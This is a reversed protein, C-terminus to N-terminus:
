SELGSPYGFVEPVAVMASFWAKDMDREVALRNLAYRSMAARANTGGVYSCAARYGSRAVAEMVRRDYADPGGVPYSIIEAPRPLHGDLAAKSATLEYDLEEDTLKALMRHHVGHSGIEMGGDQMEAIAEWTMPRCDPHPARPLNWERELRAITARQMVDDARKVRELVAEAIRRRAVLSPPLAVDIGLEPIAVRDAATVCIMYVLWDYAYPMGSDIHGTSVFFTASLGLERLIPFAIRYNDDYGDDFTVLVADHPLPPGGDLAAVVDSFAVPNFHAAIWELQERFQRSSASVVELDFKFRALDDIDLVRHYALIRLDDRWLRRLMQLAPLAGFRYCSRALRVRKPAGVPEHVDFSGIM